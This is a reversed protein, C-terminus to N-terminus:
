LEIVLEIPCHDSGKIESLHACEVIKQAAEDSVFFYDLRWGRNLSRRDRRTSWWTYADPEDPHVQRFADVFGHDVIAALGAREDSLYGEDNEGRHPNLEYIDDDSLTTNFDGVLVTPREFARAQIFEILADDWLQRAQRRRAGGLPNPVYVNIVWCGDYECAIVRGERDIDEIGLGRVVSLPEEKSLTLTGWMGDRESHNWIHHYGEAVLPEQKTRVEQFCIIDPERKILPDFRQNKIKALLGNLNWSQIRM